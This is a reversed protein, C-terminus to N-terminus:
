PTRLREATATEARDEAWAGEVEEPSGQIECRGKLVKGRLEDPVKVSGKWSKSLIAACVELKGHVTVHNSHPDSTAPSDRTARRPKSITGCFSRGRSSWSRRGGTSSVRLRPASPPGARM